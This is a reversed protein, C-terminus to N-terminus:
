TGAGRARSLIELVFDPVGGPEEWLKYTERQHNAAGFVVFVDPAIRNDANGEELYIFLDGSVYIDSRDAFWAKLAPQVYFLTLTQYEGDPPPLGDTEPYEVLDDPTTKAM